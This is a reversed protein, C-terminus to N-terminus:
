LSLCMCYCFFIILINLVARVLIEGVLNIVISLFFFLFKFVISGGRSYYVVGSQNIKFLYSERQDRKM